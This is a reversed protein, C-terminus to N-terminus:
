RAPIFYTGTNKRYRRTHRVTKVYTGGSQGGSGPSQCTSQLMNLFNVGFNTCELTCVSNLLKCVDAGASGESGVLASMDLRSHHSEVM